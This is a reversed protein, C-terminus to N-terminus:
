DWLFVHQKFLSNNIRGDLCLSFFEWALIPFSGHSIGFRAIIQIYSNHQGLSVIHGIALGIGAYSHNLLKLSLGAIHSVIATGATLMMGGFVYQYVRNIKAKVEQFNPTDEKVQISKKVVVALATLSVAFAIKCATNSMNSFFFNKASQFIQPLSGATSNVLSNM